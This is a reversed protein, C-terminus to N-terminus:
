EEKCNADVPAEVEECVREYMVYGIYKYRVIFRVKKGVQGTFSGDDIFTVDVDRGQRIQDYAATGAAGTLPPFTSDLSSYHTVITVKYDCKKM